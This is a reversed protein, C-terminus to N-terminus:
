SKLRRNFFSASISPSTEKMRVIASFHRFESFLFAFVFQFLAFENFIPSFFVTKNNEYRLINMEVLISHLDLSWLLRFGFVFLTSKM